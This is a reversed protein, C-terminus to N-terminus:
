DYTAADAAQEAEIERAAKEANGTPSVGLHRLAFQTITKFTPAATSGGWIPSPEDLVVIVVVAPRRAPAFGAFSGVYSNGYGGTPLPKQATGTKGAVEYGPIQAEIGTGDKTVGALIKTMQKATRRSIVRRTAAPPSAEARGRNGMTAAILKPEVWVGRNALTSYAAAMQLPTVAIGQGIPITAITPGTWDSRDLVLGSSEGPFDLGTKAGFGFRRVYSDLKKGGLRLGIQITGVNSSQEIIETVTMKETPHPHSDHFVRDSYAYADPVVFTSKPTVVGEELAASATVIKYASGPEYFDTVARNRRDQDTFTGAKNPDFDPVNALALIEGTQPRMVIATGAEAHYTQTAHALTAQTFYQLEKDITLFLSRGPQPREYTFEAQPLSREGSADQELTMSGPTGRLIEEFQTEVGELGKGDIDVFGLVHSALRRGPYYRKPEAELYVGPLDLAKVKQAIGPGVQRALYQFRCDCALKMELETPDLDLVRALKAAEAAPDEVHQPDTWVTHLEISIALPEGERDLIAGRRAPFEIVRDRQAVALEAYQPGEVIQLVFLRSAMGLFALTFVM